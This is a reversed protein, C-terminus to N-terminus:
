CGDFGFRTSLLLLLELVNTVVSTCFHNCCRVYSFAIGIPVLSSLELMSLKMAQWFWSLLGWNNLALLELKSPVGQELRSLFLVSLAFVVLWLGLSVWPQLASQVFGLVVSQVLVLMTRPVFAVRQDQHLASQLLFTPLDM